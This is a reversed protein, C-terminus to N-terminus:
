PAGGPTVAGNADITDGPRAYCPRYPDADHPWVEIVTPDAQGGDLVAHVWSFSGADAAFAAVEAENGGTWTVSRAPVGVEAAMYLQLDVLGFSRTAVHYGGDNVTDDNGDLEGFREAWEPASHACLHFSQGVVAQAWVPHERVFAAVRELSVAVAEAEAADIDEYLSM